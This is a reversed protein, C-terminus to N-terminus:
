IPYDRQPDIGCTKIFKRLQMVEQKPLSHKAHSFNASHENLAVHIKGGHSAKIEAGLERLVSEVDKMAVNANIPHAFLSHLIKRHHHNM